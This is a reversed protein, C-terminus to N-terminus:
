ALSLLEAQVCTEQAADGGEQGEGCRDDSSRPSLIAQTWIWLLFLCLFIMPTWLVRGLVDEGKELANPELIQKPNM